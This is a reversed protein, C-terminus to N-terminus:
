LLSFSAYFLYQKVQQLAKPQKSRRREWLGSEPKLTHFSPHLDRLVPFCHEVTNTDALVLNKETEGIYKSIVEPLDDQKAFIIHDSKGM